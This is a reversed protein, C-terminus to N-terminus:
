IGAEEIAENLSCEFCIETQNDKRSLANHNGKLHNEGCIPCILARKYLSRKAQELSMDYQGYAFCDLSENYLHTAYAVGDEGYKSKMMVLTYILYSDEQHSLQKANILQWGLAKACEAAKEKINM